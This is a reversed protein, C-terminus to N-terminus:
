LFPGPIQAFWGWYQYLRGPSAPPLPQPLALLFPCPSSRHFFCGSGGWPRGLAGQCIDTRTAGDVIFQPNSLLEQLLGLTQDRPWGRGSVPVWGSWLESGM